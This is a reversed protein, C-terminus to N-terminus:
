SKDQSAETLQKLNDPLITTADTIATDVQEPTIFQAKSLNTGRMNTGRMNAERLYAERMNAGRLVVSSLNAKMLDVECLSVGSFDREGVAYRKLLESADM